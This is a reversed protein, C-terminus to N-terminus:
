EVTSTSEDIWSLYGALGNKISVALVEPLEYPHLEVIKREIENYLSSRTKILLILETGSERCGKWEYISTVNPIINICAALNADVLKDAVAEATTRDPCTTIVLLHENKM